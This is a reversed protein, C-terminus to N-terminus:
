ATMSSNTLLRACRRSFTAHSVAAKVKLLSRLSSIEYTPEHSRQRPSRALALIPTCAYRGRMSKTHPLDFRTLGDARFTIAHAAIHSDHEKVKEMNAALAHHSLRPAVPALTKLIQHLAM